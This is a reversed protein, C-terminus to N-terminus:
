DGTLVIDSVLNTVSGILEVNDGTLQRYDLLYTNTYFPNIKLNYPNLVPM